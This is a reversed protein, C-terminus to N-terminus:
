VRPGGIGRLAIFAYNVWVWIGFVIMLVGIGTAVLGSFIVGIVPVKHILNLLNNLTLKGLMELAVIALFIPAIVIFALIGWFLNSAGTRRLLRYTEYLIIAVLLIDIADKFGFSFSLLHM